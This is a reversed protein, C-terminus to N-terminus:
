KLIEFLLKLLDIIGYVIILIGIITCAIFVFRKYPHKKKKQRKFFLQPLVMWVFFGIIIKIAIFTM